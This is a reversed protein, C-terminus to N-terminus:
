QAERDAYLALRPSLLEEQLTWARQSWPEDDHIVPWGGTPDHRAKVVSVSGGAEKWQRYFVQATIRDQLFGQNASTASTAALTLQAQTYVDAMRSCETETDAISDQVICLADIWLFQFGMDRATIIADKLTKPLEKAAVGAKLHALNSQTAKYTEERGRCYSLAIYHRPPDSPKTEVLRVFDGLAINIALLRTPTLEAKQPCLAHEYCCVNLCKKLFSIASDSRATTDIEEGVPLFNWAV